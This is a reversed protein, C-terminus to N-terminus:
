PKTILISYKLKLSFDIVVIFKITINLLYISVFVNM